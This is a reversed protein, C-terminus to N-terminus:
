NTIGLFIPANRHGAFDGFSEQRAQRCRRESFTEAARYCSMRYLRQSTRRCAPGGSGTASVNRSKATPSFDRGVRAARCALGAAMM